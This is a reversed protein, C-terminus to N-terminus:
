LYLISLGVNGICTGNRGSGTYGIKCTCNFSGPYNTCDAVGRDDCDDIRLECEDIDSCLVIIIM